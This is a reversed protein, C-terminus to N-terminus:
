TIDKGAGAIDGKIYVDNVAPSVLTSQGKDQLFLLGNEYIAPRGEGPPRKKTHPLWEPCTVYVDFPPTSYTAM